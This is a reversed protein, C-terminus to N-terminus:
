LRDLVQRALKVLVDNGVPTSDVIVEVTIAAGNDFVALIGPQILRASEGVGDVSAADSADEALQADFQARTVKTGLVVVNVVTTAASAGAIIYSCSGTTGLPGESKTPRGDSLSKGAIADAESKTVLRCLDGGKAVTGGGDSSSADTTTTASKSTTTSGDSSANSDDGGCAAATMALLLVAGCWRLHVTRRRALGTPRTGHEGISM